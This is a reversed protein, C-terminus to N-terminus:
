SPPTDIRTWVQSKCILNPIVCGTAKLTRDDIREATGAFTANLDPVFVKGRGMVGSMRPFDRLLQLGVLEATGGRRAAAQAKASAWVVYGCTLDGCPQLRLHVSNQPNRWVGDSLERSPGEAGNAATALGAAALALLIRPFRMVRNFVM